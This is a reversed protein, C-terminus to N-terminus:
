KSFYGLLRRLLHLLLQKGKDFFTHNFMIEFLKVKYSTYETQLPERDDRQVKRHYLIKVTLIETDSHFVDLNWFVCYHVIGEM